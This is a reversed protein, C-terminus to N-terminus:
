RDDVAVVAVLRREVVAGLAAGGIAIRALEQGVVERGHVQGVAVVRTEHEEGRVADDAPQARLQPIAQGRSSASRSPGPPPRGVKRRELPADDRGRAARM